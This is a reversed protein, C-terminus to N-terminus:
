FVELKCACHLVIVVPFLYKVDVHGQACDTFNRHSLFIIFFSKVEILICPKTRTVNFFEVILRVHVNECLCIGVNVFMNNM